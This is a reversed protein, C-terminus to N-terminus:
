GTRLMAAIFVAIVATVIIGRVTVVGSKVKELDRLIHGKKDTM